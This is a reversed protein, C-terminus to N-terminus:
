IQLSLSDFSCIKKLYLRSRGFITSVIDEIGYARIWHRKKPAEEMLSPRYERRQFRLMNHSPLPSVWYYFSQALDYFRVCKWRTRKSHQHKVWVGYQSPAWLATIFCEMHSSSFGGAGSEGQSHAEQLTSRRAGLQVVEVSVKQFLTLDDEGVDAWLASANM